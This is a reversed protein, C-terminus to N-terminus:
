RRIHFVIPPRPALPFKQKPTLHKEFLENRDTLCFCIEISMPACVTPLLGPSFYFPIPAYCSPNNPTSYPGLSKSYCSSNLVFLCQQHQSGMSLEAEKDGEVNVHYRWYSVNVAQTFITTCSSYCMICELSSAFLMPLPVQLRFDRVVWREGFILSRRGVVHGVM